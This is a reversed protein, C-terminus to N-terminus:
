WKCTLWKLYKVIVDVSTENFYFHFHEKQDNLNGQANKKTKNKIRHSTKHGCFFNEFHIYLITQWIFIYPFIIVNQRKMLIQM